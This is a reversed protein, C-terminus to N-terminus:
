GAYIRQCTSGSHRTLLLQRQRYWCESFDRTQYRLPSIFILNRTATRCAIIVLLKGVKEYDLLGILEDSCEELEPLMENDVAIEGIEAYNKAPYVPICDIGYTMAIMDDISSDPNRMIRSKFGAKQHNELQQFREAFLNLKYIDAKQWKDFVDAPLDVMDYKSFMFEIERGNQVNMRDLIDQLNIASVPLGWNVDKDGYRLKVTM